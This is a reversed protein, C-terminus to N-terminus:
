ESMPTFRSWSRIIDPSDVLDFRNKMLTLSAEHQERKDSEVCDRVVVVYYDAFMGDRATSEVCGETTAGTIVLTEIGNSRLLLDLPTGAFASSRFKQIVIESELPALEEVFQHGWTDDVTYRVSPVRADQSLRMRFRIQAPSDSVFGPLITNQVFIRMVGVDRAADLLTRTRTIMSPYLSTDYGASHFAGGTACFDNQIDIILLASHRPDVLEDVSEYIDRGDVNKM